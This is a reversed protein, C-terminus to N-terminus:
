TERHDRPRRLLLQRVLALPHPLEDNLTLDLRRVAELGDLCVPAYEDVSLVLNFRPLAMLRRQRVLYAPLCSTSLATLPAQGNTVDPDACGSVLSVLQPLQDKSCLSKQTQCWWSVVKCM